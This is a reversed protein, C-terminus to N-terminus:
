KKQKRTKRRKHRRRKGGKAFNIFDQIKQKDEETYPHRLPTQVKSYKWMDKIEDLTYEKGDSLTIRPVGQKIPELTIANVGKKPYNPLMQYEALDGEIPATSRTRKKGVVPPAQQPIVGTFANYLDMIQQNIINEDGHLVDEEYYSIQRPYYEEMVQGLPQINYKRLLDFVAERYIQIDEMTIGNDQLYFYLKGLACGYKIKNEANDPQYIYENFGATDLRTLIYQELTNIDGGKQKRTKKSKNRRLKKTM